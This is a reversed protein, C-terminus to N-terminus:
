GEHYLWIAFIVESVREELIPQVNKWEKKDIRLLQKWTLSSKQWHDKPGRDGRVPSFTAMWDCADKVIADKETFPDDKFLLYHEVRELLDLKEHATLADRPFQCLLYELM